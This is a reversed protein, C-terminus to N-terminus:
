EDDSDSDSRPLRGTLHRFYADCKEAAPRKGKGKSPLTSKGARCCIYGCACQWHTSVGCAMCKAHHAMYEQNGCAGRSGSPGAGGQDARDDAVPEDPMWPNNILRNSLMVLWKYRKVDGVHHRYAKMANTECMGLIALFM